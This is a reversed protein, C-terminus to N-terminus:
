QQCIREKWHARQLAPSTQPPIQCSSTGGRGQATLEARQGQVRRGGWRRRLPNPFLDSFRTGAAPLALQSSCGQPVARPVLHERRIRAPAASSSISGQTGPGATGALEPKSSPRTCTVNHLQELRATGAGARWQWLVLTCGVAMPSCPVPVICLPNSGRTPLLVDPLLQCGHLM